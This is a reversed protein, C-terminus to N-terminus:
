PAPRRENQAKMVRAVAARAAEADAASILEAHLALLVIQDSVQKLAEAEPCGEGVKSRLVACCAKRLGEAEGEARGREEGKKLTLEYTVSKMLVEEPFARVLDEASFRTGALWYLLSELDVCTREDCPASALAREAREVDGLTAGECLPVIVWAPFVGAAMSDLVPYGGAM